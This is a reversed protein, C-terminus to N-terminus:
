KNHLVTKVGDWRGAGGEVVGNWCLGLGGEGAGLFLLVTFICESLKSKGRAPDTMLRGAAREAEGLIEAM